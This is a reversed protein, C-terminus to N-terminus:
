KAPPGRLGICNGWPDRVQCMAQGEEILVPGRYLTAGISQFHRLSTEIDPVQWYVVSGSAGSSVKADSLVLELSVAGVSLYEFDQGAVRKHAAGPFAREYWTFAEAVNGVHVMVAAITHKTMFQNFQKAHHISRFM